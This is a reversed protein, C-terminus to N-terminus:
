RCKDYHDTKNTSYVPTGPSCWRGTLLWQRVKDCLTTNLVGRWSRPEFELPSLCQNCLDNYIWSCYSWPWSPGWIHQIYCKRYLLRHGRQFLSLSLWHTSFIKLQNAIVCVYIFMFRSNRICYDHTAFVSIGSINTVSQLFFFGLMLCVLALVLFLCVFLFLFFCSFFGGFFCLIISCM